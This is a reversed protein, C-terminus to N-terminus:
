QKIGKAKLKVSIGYWILDAEDALDMVQQYAWGTIDRWKRDEEHLPVIGKSVDNGILILKRKPNNKEWLIWAQLMAKWNALIVEQNLSVGEERIWHEIGELIVIHCKNSGDLEVGPLPENNYASVWLHFVNNLKYYEKIWKGKGNFAGGTVFHV